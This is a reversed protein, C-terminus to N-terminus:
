SGHDEVLAAQVPAQAASGSAVPDRHWNQNCGSAALCPNCGSAVEVKDLNHAVELVGHVVERIGRDHRRDHNHVAEAHRHEKSLPGVVQSRAAAQTGVAVHSYDAHLAESGLDGQGITVVGVHLEV